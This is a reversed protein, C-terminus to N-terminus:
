KKVLGDLFPLLSNKIADGSMLTAIISIKHVTNVRVSLDDSDLEEKFFEFPNNNEM